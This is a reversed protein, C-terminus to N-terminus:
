GAGQPGLLIYEPLIRAQEPEVTYSSCRRMFPPDWRDERGWGKRKNQQEQRWLYTERGGKGNRERLLLDEVHARDCLPMQRKGLM